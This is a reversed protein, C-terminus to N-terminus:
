KGGSNDPSRQAPNLTLAITAESSNDGSRVTLQLKSDTTPKGTFAFRYHGAEVRDIELQGEAQSFTLAADPDKSLARFQIEQANFTLQLKPADAAFLKLEVWIAEGTRQSAISGRTGGVDFNQSDIPRADDSQPRLLTAALDSEKIPASHEVTGVYVALVLLGTALGVAYPYIPRIQFWAGIARIVRSSIAERRRPAPSILRMVKAKLDAPPEVVPTAALANHARQLLTRLHRASEDAALLRELESREATTLEGDLERNILEQVRIKVM